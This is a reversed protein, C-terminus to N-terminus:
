EEGGECECSLPCAYNALSENRLREMREVRKRWRRRMILRPLWPLREIDQRVRELAEGLTERHSV